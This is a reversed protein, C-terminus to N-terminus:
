PGYHSCRCKTLCGSALPGLDCRCFSPVLQGQGLAAPARPVKYMEPELVLHQTHWGPLWDGAPLVCTCAPAHRAGEHWGARWM